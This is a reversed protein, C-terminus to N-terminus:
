HLWHAPADLVEHKNICLMCCVFAATHPEVYFNQMLYILPMIKHVAYTSACLSTHKVTGRPNPVHGRTGKGPDRCPHIDRSSDLVCLVSATLWSVILMESQVEYPQHGLLLQYSTYGQFYAKNNLNMVAQQLVTPWYRLTLPVAHTVTGETLCQDAQTPWSGQSSSTCPIDLTSQARCGLTSGKPRYFLVWQGVPYLHTPRDM